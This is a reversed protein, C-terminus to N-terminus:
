PTFILIGEKPQFDPKAPGGEATGGKLRPCPSLRSKWFFGDGKGDTTDSLFCGLPQLGQLWPLPGGPM